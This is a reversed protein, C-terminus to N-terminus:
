DHQSEQIFRSFTIIKKDQLSRRGHLTFYRLLDILINEAIKHLRYFIKIIVYIRNYKFIHLGYRSDIFDSANM